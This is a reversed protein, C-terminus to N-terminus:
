SIFGWDHGHDNQQLSVVIPFSSTPHLAYRQSCRPISFFRALVFQPLFLALHHKIKLPWVFGARKIHLGFRYFLDSDLLRLAKKPSFNSFNDKFHRERVNMRDIPSNEAINDICNNTNEITSNDMSDNAKLEIWRIIINFENISLIKIILNYIPEKGHM